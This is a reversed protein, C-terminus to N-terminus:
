RRLKSALIEQVEPDALRESMARFEAHISHRLDGRHGDRILRKVARLAATPKGALVRAVEEASALLEDGNVVDTVLGLEWARQATVSGGTLLVETAARMGVARALLMTSGGEAVLGLDVFPFDLSADRTVLVFDCHLLMTAGIGIARGHVAAVLPVELESLALVFRSGPDSPEMTPHNIFDQVDSGACFSKGEGSILVTRVSPEVNARRLEHALADYMRRTLSNLKTPRSLRLHLVGDSWSVDVRGTSGEAGGAESGLSSV